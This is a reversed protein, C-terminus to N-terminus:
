LPATSRSTVIAKSVQPVSLASADLATSIQWAQVPSECADPRAPDPWMAGPQHSSTTPGPLYMSVFWHNTTQMVTSPPHWPDVPGAEGCGASPRGYPDRNGTNVMRSM